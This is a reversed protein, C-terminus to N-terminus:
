SRVFLSQDPVQAGRRQGHLVSGAVREYGALRLVLGLSADTGPWHQEILEPGGGRVVYRLAAVFLGYLVLATAVGVLMTQGVGM